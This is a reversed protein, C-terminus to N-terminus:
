SGRPSPRETTSRSWPALRCRRPFGWRHLCTSSPPAPSTACGIRSMPSSPMRTAARRRRRGTPSRAAEQGVPRSPRHPGVAGQHGCPDVGLTRQLASDLTAQNSADSLDSLLRTIEHQREAAKEAQRRRDLLVFTLASGFISFGAIVFLLSYALRRSHASAASDLAVAESLARDEDDRIETMVARADDMLRKGEPAAVIAAARDAEGNRRAEIAEALLAVRAGILREFDAIREATEPHGALHDRFAQISENLKAMGSTYPALAEEKGTIAYDRQATEAERMIAMIQQSHARTGFTQNLRERVMRASDFGSALALAVFAILGVILIQGGLFIPVMRMRFPDSRLADPLIAAPFDARM